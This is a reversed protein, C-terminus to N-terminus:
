YSSTYFKALGEYIVSVVYITEHSFIMNIKTAAMWVDYVAGTALPLPRSQPDPSRPKVGPIGELPNFVDKSTRYEHRPWSPVYFVGLQEYRRTDPLM